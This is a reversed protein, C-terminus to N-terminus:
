LPYLPHMIHKINFTFDEANTDHLSEGVVLGQPINIDADNDGQSIEGNDEDWKLIFYWVLVVISSIWILLM